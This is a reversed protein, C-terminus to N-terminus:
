MLLKIKLLIKKQPQRMWLQKTELTIDEPCYKGATRLVVDNNDKLIIEM